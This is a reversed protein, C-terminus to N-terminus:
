VNLKNELDKNTISVFILKGNPCRSPEDCLFLDKILRSQAHQHLDAGSRISGHKAMTKALLRSLKVGKISPDNEIDELFYRRKNYYEFFSKGSDPLILYDIKNKDCYQELQQDNKTMLICLTNKKRLKALLDTQTLMRSVFGHSVIYCLDYM